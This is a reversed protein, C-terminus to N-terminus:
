QNLASCIKDIDYDPAAELAAYFIKGIKEKDEELEDAIIDIDKGKKIKKVVMFVLAEEKGQKIGARLITKAEYDLVKGGMIGGLGKKIKEYKATINEIVIKAMDTIMSKTYETIRGDSCMNELEQVISKFEKEAKELVASGGEMAPFEKEYSFIYFPLLFLLNKGFIEELSYEQM